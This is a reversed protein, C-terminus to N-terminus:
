RYNLNKLNANASIEAAPIPYYEYKADVARGDLVGGKWQWLYASTTFCGFRRLDTRRQAELYFERAREKLIFDLSFNSAVVPSAQARERVENVLGMADDASTGTAGRLVAEAEMLYVDALRMLPWDTDVGNESTTSSPTGDDKLNSWKMAFYGNSPDDIGKDLNKTRGASYFRCRTDTSQTIDVPDFLDPLEGHVRFSGWGVDIGYKEVGIINEHDCQGCVVYTAGGWTVTHTADTVFAFIIEDSRKDNDANFLKGYDEELTYGAGRVKKCYTVCDEYHDGAGYVEANLYLRALLFWAAAKCARGYEVRDKLGDTGDSIAKLESEIYQFLEGANRAEPTYSGMPTNEDVFAGQNYLDLVMWWALARVFRAEAMYSNVENQETGTLSAAESRHRLFENCLTITYYLRYYTDGVWPDNEDWNMSVLDTMKDGSLWTYAIEDTAAEQLNFYCRMLDQGNNSTLDANGGGKELGTLVYSGYIKALMSRYGDLTSYVTGADTESSTDPRQDLDKFCATTLALTCVLIAFHIKKMTNKM